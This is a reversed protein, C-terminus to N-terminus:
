VRNFDGLQTIMETLALKEIDTLHPNWTDMLLIVRTQESKNWAEHLYTDDFSLCKGAVGVLIQDSVKLACQEPVILPLHVVSRINSTGYHPLIHTGATLVSFCIEPAHDPIRVLPLAELIASTRPCEVHNAEYKKGHRYFFYADWNPQEGGLYDAVSDKPGINLFPSIGSQKELVNAAEDRISEFQNELQEFWPFLANDFVPTNPLEPFYLFNPRQLPDPSQLGIYGLNAKLALDVRTLETKEFRALLADMILAYLTERGHNAMQIAHQVDAQL